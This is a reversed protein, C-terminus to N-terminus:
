GRNWRDYAAQHIQQVEEAGMNKLTSTFEDWQDLGINGTIFKANMQDVYTNLDTLLVNLRAQEEESFYTMPFPTVGYPLYAESTVRNFYNGQPNNEKAAFELGEKSWTWYPLITGGADPTVKGGRHEERNSIPSVFSWSTKDENWEWSEGMMVLKAGEESYLYDALRISAEPHENEKTIAFAGRAVGTSVPYIKQDNVPSTMPPLYPYDVSELPTIDVHIFPGAAVFVGTRNEKGKATYQQQTHSFMENDLLKEEYLRRVYALYDKYKPDLPVYQAKDNFVGIRNGDEVLGFAPLIITTLLSPNQVSFPIEDAEGNGNPDGEKFQKLLEYLEETNGPIHKINLKELWTQNIWAKIALGRPITSIKPLAYIHGDPATITKKVDPLEEFMKRINPAYKEILEELPILVGQKGYEVEDMPTLNGGFFVDPLSNTAFALNKKEALNQSAPTDFEFEFNMKEGLVKFLQLDQWAGQIPYKAGMLKLTIPTDVVPFGEAHFNDPLGADQNNTASENSTGKNNAINENSCGASLTLLLVFVLTWCLYKKM